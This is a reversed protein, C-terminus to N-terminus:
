AEILHEFRLPSAGGILIPRIGFALAGEGDTDPNDGIMVAEEPRIALRACAREFLLPGPKGIVVMGAEAERVCALLAALLAGTEPVLRDGAGPHTRDANAVVLAAGDRLANIARQLKAYTFRADRMLVVVDPDDRVLPVGAGCAFRRMRSASLLMVRQYGQEAVHRIAEAGAMFIRDQPVALGHQALIAAFDEPLHTSNNSIIAVREAHRAILSIAGPMVRNDIAVCGDWDLLLGKAAHVARREARGLPPLGGFSM